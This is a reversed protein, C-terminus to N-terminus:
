ERGGKKWKAGSREFMVDATRRAAASDRRLLAARFQEAVTRMLVAEAPDLRDALAALRDMAAGIRAVSGAHDGRERAALAEVLTRRVATIVDKAQPGFVIELEGLRAIVSEIGLPIASHDDAAM